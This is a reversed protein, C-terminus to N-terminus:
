NALGEVELRKTRVPMKDFNFRVGMFSPKNPRNQLRGPAYCPSMTLELRDNLALTQVTSVLSHTQCIIKTTYSNHTNNFLYTCYNTLKFPSLPPSPFSFLTSIFVSLCAM